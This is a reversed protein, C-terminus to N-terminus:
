QDRVVSDTWGVQDQQGPLRVQTRAPGHRDVVTVATMAGMQHCAVPEAAEHGDLRASVAAQHQELDAETPCLLAGADLRQRPDPKLTLKQLVPAATKTESTRRKGGHHGGFGGPTSGAASPDSSSQAMATVPVSVAGVGIAVVLAFGIKVVVVSEFRM